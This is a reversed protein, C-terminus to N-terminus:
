SRATGQSFTLLVLCQHCRLLNKRPGYTGLSSRAASVLDLRSAFESSDSLDFLACQAREEEAAASLLAGYSGPVAVYDAYRFRLKM